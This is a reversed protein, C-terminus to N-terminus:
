SITRKAIDKLSKITKSIEDNAYLDGRRPINGSEVTDLLCTTPRCAVSIESDYDAMARCSQREICPRLQKRIQTVQRPDLASRM